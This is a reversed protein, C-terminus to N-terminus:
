NFTATHKLINLSSFTIGMGASFLLASNFDRHETIMQLNFFVDSCFTHGYKGIHSLDLKDEWDMDLTLRSLLPRNLNYSIVVDPPNDRISDSSLFTVLQDYFVNRMENREQVTTNEPNKYYQNIHTVKSATIQWKGIKSSLLCAASMEGLLGVPMKNFYPSFSKEGSLIIAVGDFDTTHLQRILHVASLASACHNLSLTFTTWRTLGCANALNKLWEDDFFTNHTQTKTFILYGKKNCLSPHRSVLESLTELHMDFHSKEIMSVSDLQYIRQYIKIEKDSLQHSEALERLPRCRYSTPQSCQIDKIFLM